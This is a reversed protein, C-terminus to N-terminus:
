EGERSHTDVAKRNYL